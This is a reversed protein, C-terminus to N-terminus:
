TMALQLRWTLITHGRLPVQESPEVELGDDEAVPDLMSCHGYPSRDHLLIRLLVCQVNHDRVLRAVNDLSRAVERPM